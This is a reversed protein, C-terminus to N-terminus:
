KDFDRNRSIMVHAIKSVKTIPSVINVAPNIMPGIRKM